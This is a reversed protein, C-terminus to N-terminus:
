WIITLACQCAFVETNSSVINCWESPFVIIKGQKLGGCCIVVNENRNNSTVLLRGFGDIVMSKHGQLLYCIHAFGMLM